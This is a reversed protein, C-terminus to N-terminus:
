KATLMLILEDISGNEIVIGPYNDLYFRKKNTLCAYGYGTSKTVLLYSKDIREYMERDLKLLAYSGLLVDTDEHLIVKGDHIMCIDDCLGELDTSIHSSILISCDEHDTMYGRLMDLIENRAVVDLGATPEDLILLEAHHSIAVLVRLKAKMGTSFERIPKDLPLGQERAARRFFEEEFRPYMNRLIKIVAEMNIYGSFGSEALATGIRQKDAITLESANKDFVKVSGSDPTILGLIAKITTSKGAGNRGVLGTIHGRPVNLSINLIFGSYNKTLQEIKIM